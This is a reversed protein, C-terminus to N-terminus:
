SRVCVAALYRAEVSPARHGVRYVGPYERLLLGSRLRQRIEEPTVGVGLLEERTAVGHAERAIRACLREVTRDQQQM